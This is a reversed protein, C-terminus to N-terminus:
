SLNVKIKKKKKQNFTLSINQKKVSNFSVKFLSSRVEYKILFGGFITLVLSALTTKSPPFFNCM